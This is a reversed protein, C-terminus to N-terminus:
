GFLFEQFAEKTVKHGILELGRDTYKFWFSEDENVKMEVAGTPYDDERTELQLVVKTNNVM